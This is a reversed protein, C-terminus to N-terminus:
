GTSPKMDRNIRQILQHLRGYSNNNFTFVLRPLDPFEGKLKEEPLCPGTEMAGEVVMDSFESNWTAVMETSPARHLRLVALPGVFRMSHYTQYYDTVKKVAEDVDHVIDFLALDVDSILRRKALENILFDQWDKWYTGGAPEVMIIPRPETKGTQVLTLTEFAEDLTGFGGPFLFTADTEKMFTLKRTFFYKFDMLKPDGKIYPNADQEFPLSINVGFSNGPGAGRNGAEMIGGGAGTVTMWGVQTLAQATQQAMQYCPDTEETRASGFIVARRTGEFPCFLKLAYRMEKLSSNILKLEGRNSTERGLKVSTTLIERILVQNKPEADCFEVLEAILEDAKPDGVNYHKETRPM